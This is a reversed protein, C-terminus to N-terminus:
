ESRLCDIPNVNAARISPILSAAKAKKRDAKGRPKLKM